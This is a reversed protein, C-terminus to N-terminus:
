GPNFVRQWSHVVMLGMGQDLMHGDFPTLGTKLEPLTAFWCPKRGTYCVSPGM